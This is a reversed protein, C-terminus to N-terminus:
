QVFPKNAQRWGSFGVKLEYVEKFGLEQLVPITKGSRGGSACYYFFPKNKDLKALQEKFDPTYYDIMIANALHGQKYEDPTRIDILTYDKSETLKAEFAAADLQQLGKGAPSQCSAASIFISFLLLSSVITKMNLTYKIM